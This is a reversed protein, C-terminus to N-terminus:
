SGPLKLSGPLEMAVPAQVFRRYARVDPFIGGILLGDESMRAYNSHPWDQPGAVLSAAVPNLHIYRALHALGM